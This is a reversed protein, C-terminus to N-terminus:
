KENKFPNLRPNFFNLYDRRVGFCRNSINCEECEPLKKKERRAYSAEQSNKNKQYDVHKEKYEKIYCFPIHDFCFDLKKNKCTNFAQKLYPAAEEYRVLIDKNQLIAGVTKLFSFQIFDIKSFESNVYLAFDSIEKYNLSNVIHTFRINANLNELNKVGQIRSKLLDAQTIKRDIESLHSPFNINFLDVGRAVLKEALNEYRLLSGNTQLEVFLGRDKAQKIVWFLDNSLCPEGGTISVKDQAKKIETLILEKDIEEDRGKASCFLCNQNCKKNIPLIM